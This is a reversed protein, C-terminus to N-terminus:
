RVGAELVFRTNTIAATGIGSLAPVSGVVNM